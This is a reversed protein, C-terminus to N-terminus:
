YIFNFNENGKAVSPKIEPVPKKAKKVTNLKKKPPPADPTRERSPPNVSFKWM